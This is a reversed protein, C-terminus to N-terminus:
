RDVWMRVLILIVVVIGISVWVTGGALLLGQQGLPGFIAFAVVAIVLVTIIAPWCGTTSTTPPSSSSERPDDSTDIDGPYTM